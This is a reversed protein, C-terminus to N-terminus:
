PPLAGTAAPAGPAPGSVRWVLVQTRKAPFPVSWGDPLGGPELQEVREFGAAELQAHLDARTRADFAFSEGRTFRKMVREVWRGVRGPRPQEPGPVYDFMFISGPRDRVFRAVRDFLGQQTEADLYMLLGEAIVTVPASGPALADLDCTLADDAVLELNPRALVERGAAKRSLLKRKADVVHPLDVEVYRVSPDASVTAGRRSLGAALEVVRPAAAEAVGRDILAHRQALGHRLSPLDRRFLRVFGLVLNTANFVDRSRWSSLLEANPLRAWRWTQSTYLATVTLDGRARTAPLRSHGVM